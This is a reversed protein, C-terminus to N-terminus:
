PSMTSISEGVMVGSGIRTALPWTLSNLSRIASHPPQPLANLASWRAPPWCSSESAKSASSILAMRSAPTFHGVQASVLHDSTLIIFRM